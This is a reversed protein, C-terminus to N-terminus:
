EYSLTVQTWLKYNVFKARKWTVCLNTLLLVPLKWRLNYVCDLFLFLENSHMVLVWSLKIKMYRCWFPQIWPQHHSLVAFSFKSNVHCCIGFALMYWVFNVDTRVGSSGWPLFFARADLVLCSPNQPLLPYSQLYPIVRALTLCLSQLPCLTM